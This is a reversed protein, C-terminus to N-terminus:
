NPPHPRLQEDMAAVGCCFPEKWSGILLTRMRRHFMHIESYYSAIGGTERRSRVARHASGGARRATERINTDPEALQMSAKSYSGYDNVM